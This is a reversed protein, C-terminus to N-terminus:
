AASEKLGWGHVRDPDFEKSDSLIQTVRRDTIQDAGPVGRAVLRARIEGAPLRVGGRLVQKAGDIIHRRGGRPLSEMTATAEDGFTISDTASVEIVM